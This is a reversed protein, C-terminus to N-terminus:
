LTFTTLIITILHPDLAKRYIIELPMAEAEVYVAYDCEVSRIIGSVPALVNGYSHAEEQFDETPDHLAAPPAPTARMTMQVGCGGVATPAGAFEDGDGKPKGPRDVEDLLWQLASQNVGVLPLDGALVSLGESSAAIQGSPLHFIGRIQNRMDDVTSYEGDWLVVEGRVVHFDPHSTEDSRLQFHVTGQFKALGKVKKRTENRWLDWSGKYPGTINLNSKPSADPEPDSFLVSGSCSPRLLSLVGAALLLLSRRM